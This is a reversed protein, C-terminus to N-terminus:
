SEVRNRGTEKARYLAEDAAAILTGLDEGSQGSCVAVGLSVTLPRLLCESFFTSLFYINHASLM